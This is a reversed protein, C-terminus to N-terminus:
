QLSLTSGALWGSARARVMTSEGGGVRERVRGEWSGNLAHAQGSIRMSLVCVM